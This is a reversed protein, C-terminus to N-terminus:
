FTKSASVAIKRENKAGENVYENALKCFEALVEAPLGSFKKLVDLIGSRIM